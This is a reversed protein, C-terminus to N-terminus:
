RDDNAEKRREAKLRKAAEFDIIECDVSRRGYKMTKIFLIAHEYADLEIDEGNPGLLWGTGDAWCYCTWGGALELEWRDM